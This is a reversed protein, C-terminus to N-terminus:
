EAKTKVSAEMGCASLFQGRFLVNNRKGFRKLKKAISSYLEKKFEKIAFSIVGTYEITSWKQKTKTLKNVKQFVQLLSDKDLHKLVRNNIEDNVNTVMGNPEPAWEVNGLYEYIKVTELEEVSDTHSNYVYGRNVKKYRKNLTFMDTNDIIEYVVDREYKKEPTMRLGEAIEVLHTKVWNSVTTLTHGYFVNIIGRTNSLIIYM